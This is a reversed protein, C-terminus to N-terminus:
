KAEKSFYDCFLKHFKYDAKQCEKNCYAAKKCSTCVNIIEPKKKCAGCESITILRFNTEDEKLDFPVASGDSLLGYFVYRGAKYLDAMLFYFGGINDMTEGKLFDMLPTLDTMKSTFDLEKGKKEMTHAHLRFLTIVREMSEASTLGTEILYTKQFLKIAEKDKVPAQELEARKTMMKMMPVTPYVKTYNEM